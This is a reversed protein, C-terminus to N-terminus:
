RTVDGESVHLPLISTQTPARIDRTPLFPFVLDLRHLGSFSLRSGLDIKLM